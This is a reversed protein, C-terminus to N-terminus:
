PKDNATGLVADFRHKGAHPENDDNLFLHDTGNRQGDPVFPTHLFQVNGGAFLVNQGKRHNITKVSGNVIEPADAMLPIHDADGDNRSYGALQGQQDRYGLSLAYDVNSLGTSSSKGGPCKLSHSSLSCSQQMKALSGRVDDGAAVHPYDGDHTDVWTNMGFHIDRLNNQCARAEATQRMTLASVLGVMVLAATLGAIAAVNRRRPSPPAGESEPHWPYIPPLTPQVDRRTISRLFEQVPSIGQDAVREETAVIHEAVTGVTRLVLDAPPEFADHDSALPELARRMKELRAAVDPNGAIHQEVERRVDDDLAGILYGIYQEEM